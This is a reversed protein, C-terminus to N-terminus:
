NTQSRKFWHRIRQEILQYKALEFIKDFALDRGAIKFNLVAFEPTTLRPSKYAVLRVWFFKTNGLSIIEMRSDSVKFVGNSNILRM